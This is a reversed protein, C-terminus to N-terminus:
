GAATALQAHQEDSLNGYFEIDGPGHAQVSVYRPCYGTPRLGFPAFTGLLAGARERPYCLLLPQAFDGHALVRLATFLQSPSVKIFPPDCVILGYTEDLPRPRYMDWHLFGPTQAFRLDIELLRAAVKRQGLVVGVTPACLCCPREFGAAFSALHETTEPIFFYQEHEHLEHM